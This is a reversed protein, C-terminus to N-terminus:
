YIDKAIKRNLTKKFDPCTEAYKKIAEKVGNLLNYQDVELVKEPYKKLLTKLKKDDGVIISILPLKDPPAIDSYSDPDLMSMDNSGNGAVIVLDNEKIARELAKKVDYVKDLPKNNIKPKIIISPGNSNEPDHDVFTLDYSIKRSDLKNKIAEIISDQVGKAANNPPLGIYSSLDGDQRVFAVWPNNFRENVLNWFHLYSKSGYDGYGSPAVVIPFDWEELTELIVSKIYSSDWNTIKNIEQIKKQDVHNVSPWDSELKNDPNPANKSKLFVDGGNKIVLRSPVVWDLGSQKLLNLYHRYEGRNRGTTINLEVEDTFKKIFQNLSEFAKRLQKFNESNHKEPKLINQDADPFYTGDSDFWLHVKSQGFSVNDNFNQKFPKNIKSIHM